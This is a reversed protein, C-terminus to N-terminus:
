VRVAAAKLTEVAGIVKISIFQPGVVIVKEQVTWKRNITRGIEPVPGPLSVQQFISRFAIIIAGIDDEIGLGFLVHKPIVPVLFQPFAVCTHSHAVAWRPRKDDNVAPRM